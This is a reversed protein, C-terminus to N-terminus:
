IVGLIYLIVLTEAILVVIGFDRKNKYFLIIPIIIFIISGLMNEVNTLSKIIYNYDGMIFSARYRTYSFGVSIILHFISFMAIFALLTEKINKIYSLRALRKKESQDGHFIFYHDDDVKVGNICMSEFVLYRGPCSYDRNLGHKNSIFNDKKSIKEYASDINSTYEDIINKSLSGNPTVILDLLLFVYKGKVDTKLEDNNYRETVDVYITADKKLKYSFGLGSLIKSIKEAAIDINTSIIISDKQSISHEYIAGAIAPWLKEELQSVCSAEFKEKELQEAKQKNEIEKNTKNIKNSAQEIANM